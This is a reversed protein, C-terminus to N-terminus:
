GLGPEGGPSGWSGASVVGSHLGMATLGGAFRAHEVKMCEDMVVQLGADLARRAAAEHVIGFQMWVAKAGIEIAEDVISPVHQPARFIDVIEVPGDVARLSPYCRQGLIREERPNVPVIDYDRNALYIAVFHSPRMPNASLGVMAVRRFRRLIALRELPGASLGRAEAAPDRAAGPLPCFTDAM